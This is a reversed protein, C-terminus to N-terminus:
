LFGSKNINVQLFKVKCVYKLSCASRKTESLIDKIVNQYNNLALIEM